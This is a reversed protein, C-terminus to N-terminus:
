QNNSVRVNLLANEFPTFTMLYKAKTLNYTLSATCSFIRVIEQSNKVMNEIPGGIIFAMMLAKVAMQGSKGFAM